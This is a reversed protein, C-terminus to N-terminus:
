SKKGYLYSNSLKNEHIFQNILFNFLNTLTETTSRFSVGIKV